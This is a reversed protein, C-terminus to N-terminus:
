STPNFYGYITIFASHFMTKVTTGDHQIADIVFITPQTSGTLPQAKSYYVISTTGVYVTTQWLQQLPASM